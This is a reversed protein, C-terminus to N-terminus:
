SGTSLETAMYGLTRNVELCLQDIFLQDASLHTQIIPHMGSHEGLPNSTLGDCYLLLFSVTGKVALTKFYVVGGRVLRLWPNADRLDVGYRGRYRSFFRELMLDLERCDGIEPVDSPAPIDRVLSLWEDFLAYSKPISMGELAGALGIQEFYRVVREAHAANARNGLLRYGAIEQRLQGSGLLSWRQFNAEAEESFVKLNVAVSARLFKLDPSINM